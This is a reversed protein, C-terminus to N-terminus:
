ANSVAMQLVTGHSDTLFSAWREMLVRRREFFDTRRYSREVKSGSTHALAAEAVERPVDTAEACWTRFSARFGHPRFDYGNDKLYKTMTMDSMVGKDRGPFVLGHREFPKLEKLVSLADSSLPVHFPEALDVKGKMHEAPIIWVDETIDEWRAKRLSGSRAATLILLRLALEARTEGTLTCYFAPMQQWALAPIHKTKQRSRGLLAKAKATAMLDVDLGMAAAHRLIIGLRDMAKKATEGKTHWIPALAIKIDQQDIEEVPVKGLKPLVHLEIPSFWRGARGDDKLEAQRAAFASQAIVALETDVKSAKRKIREREKIPDKDQRAVERWKTALERAERLSVESASGLGM